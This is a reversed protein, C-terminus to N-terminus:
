SVKKRVVAAPLKKAFLGIPVKEFKLPLGTAFKPQDMVTTGSLPVGMRSAAQRGARAATMTARRRLVTAYGSGGRFCVAGRLIWRPPRSEDRPRSVRAKM